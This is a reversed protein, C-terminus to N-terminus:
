RLLTIDGKLLVVFGDIFEVEAYWAYIGSQVNKGRFTGDWGATEDNVQMDMGDFVLEGWRDYVRFAKVIRVKAGDGQVFLRDNTGDGNPTFGKPLNAFRPKEVTINIITDVQCGNANVGVFQYQSADNPTVIISLVNTDISMGNAGLLSWVLLAGSTDNLTVALTLTDGYIMSTDATANIIFFPDAADINVIMSDMCNNADRVYVTYVNAALNPFLNGTQWNTGNRSFEYLGLNPTGGNASVAIQGDESDSCATGNAETSLVLQTPETLLATNTISCGNADTVILIYGGATLSDRLSNTNGDAWAYTYPATGGVAVAAIAGQNEGFCLVNATTSVGVNLATPQGLNYTFAAKCGL